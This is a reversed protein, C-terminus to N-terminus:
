MPKAQKMYGLRKVYHLQSINGGVYSSWLDAVTETKKVVERRKQRPATTQMKIYTEVQHEQLIHLLLHINPHLLTFQRKFHWHFAETRNTIAPDRLCPPHTWLSLLFRSDLTIYNEFIYDSFPSVETSTISFLEAFTDEM